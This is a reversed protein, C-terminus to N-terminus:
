ITTWLINRDLLAGNADAIAGIAIAIGRYEFSEGPRLLIGTVPASFSPNVGIRINQGATSMNRLNALAKQGINVPIPIVTTPPAMSGITVENEQGAIATDYPADSVKLPVGILTPWIGKTFKM